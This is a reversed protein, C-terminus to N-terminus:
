KLKEGLEFTCTAPELIEKSVFAKIYRNEAEKVDMSLEVFLTEGANATCVDSVEMKEMELANGKHYLVMYLRCETKETACLSYRATLTGSELVDTEKQDILVVLSADTGVEILLAGNEVLSAELVGDEIKPAAAAKGGLIEVSSYAGEIPIEASQVANTRNLIVCRVTDGVRYTRYWVSDTRSESLIPYAGSTFAQYVFHLENQAFSKMDEFCGREWLHLYKDEETEATSNYGASDRVDYYGIGAAGSLLAQYTMNRVAEGTPEYGSLPFCQNICMVPKKGKVAGKALEVGYTPYTGVTEADGPYPDTAFVDAYKASIGYKEKKAMSEVVYVPHVDDNDRVAKYLKELRAESVGNHLPEDMLMYGFVAPHNKSANVVDAAKEEDTGYLAVFALLDYEALLDLRTKIADANTTWPFFQIVNIGVDRCYAYDETNNTQVHYGMVPLFPENNWMIKGEATIMSPRQYRCVTEEGTELVTEGNRLTYCVKYTEKETLNAVPLSFSATGTSFSIDTETKITFGSNDQLAFDVVATDPLTVLGTKRLTASGTAADTYYFKEDTELIATPEVATKKCSVADWAISGAEKGLYRLEINIFRTTEGEEWPTTFPITRTKWAGDTTSLSVAINDITKKEANRYFIQVMPSTGSDAKYRMELLYSAGPEVARDTQIISMYGTDKEKRTMLVYQNGANETVVVVDGTWGRGSSWPFPRVLNGTTSNNETVLANDFGGNSLVEHGIAETAAAAPLPIFASVIWLCGLLAAMYKRAM